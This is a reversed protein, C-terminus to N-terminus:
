GSIPIVIVGGGTPTTGFTDHVVAAFAQLVSVVATQPSPDEGDTVNATTDDGFPELIFASAVSVGVM